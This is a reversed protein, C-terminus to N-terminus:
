MLSSHLNKGILGFFSPDSSSFYWGLHSRCNSCFALSWVYGAFWSFDATMEDSVTCGSARQFCRLEYVIGAPNFFTHRHEGNIAICEAESTIAHSCFACQLLARGGADESETLDPDSGRGCDRQFEDRCWLDQQGSFVDPRCSRNGSSVSVITEM